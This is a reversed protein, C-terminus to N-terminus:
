TIGYVRTHLGWVSAACKKNFLKSYQTTGAYMPHFRKNHGRHTLDNSITIVLYIQNLLNTLYLHQWHLANNGVLVVVTLTNFKTTYLYEHNKHHLNSGHFKFCIPLLDVFTLLKSFNAGDIMRFSWDVQGRARVHSHVRM